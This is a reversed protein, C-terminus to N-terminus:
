SEIIELFKESIEESKTFGTLNSFAGELSGSKSQEQIEAFTGDAIITGEKLLIIRDSIKEVVDMLHSSYFITRGAKSLKALLTKLVQVSNADLGNLPEDLIIIDPNHMLASIILIKQKMGKSYTAIQESLSMDVELLKALDVIKDKLINGSIKYIKGFFDLMEFGTLNEYLEGQEPVYGIKFKYDSKGAYIKEGFIQISGEYGSQLNLLLKITTTKGAGNPGIYGIVQGQQIDFNIDKNTRFRNFMEINVPYQALREKFVYYHQEALLTTPVLVAVQYGSNVAKFASRIAVETKGFGVDGCLLREMPADAEMDRKIEDSTRKQDPTDEYIFANEMEVQWSSDKDFKIGKRVKREAYLNVIDDAVLEIQ